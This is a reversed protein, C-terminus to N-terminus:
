CHAAFAALRGPDIETGSYLRAAERLTEIVDAAEDGPRKVAGAGPTSGELTEILTREAEMEAALLAQYLSPRRTAVRAAASEGRGLARRASRLPALVEAEFARAAAAATRLDSPAPPRGSVQRWLRWLLFSVCQGDEDQLALAAPKVGDRAYTAVVFSWPEDPTEM